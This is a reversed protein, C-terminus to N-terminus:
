KSFTYPLKYNIKNNFAVCNTMYGNYKHNYNDIFGYGNDFAVCYHAYRKSDINQSSNQNGFSFGNKDMKPGVKAVWKKVPIGDIEANDIDYQKNYYKKVFDLDMRM